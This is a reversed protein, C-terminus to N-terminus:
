KVLDLLMKEEMRKAKAEIEPTCPINYFDLVFQTIFSYFSFSDRTEGRKELFLEYGRKCAEQNNNLLNRLIQVNRTTFEEGEPQM